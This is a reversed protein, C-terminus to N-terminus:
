YKKAVEELLKFNVCNKIYGINMEKIKQKYLNKSNKLILEKNKYIFELESLILKKYKLDSESKIDYYKIVKDDFVPIMNSLKITGLLQNKEVIRIIPTISKRIEGEPTYDTKKNPSSLPAIYKLGDIELLIGIYKRTTIYEEGFYNLVKNDYRKLFNIYNEDVEFIKM